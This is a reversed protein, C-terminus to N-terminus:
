ILSGTFECLRGAEEMEAGPLVVFWGSQTNTRTHTLALYSQNPAPPHNTNPPPCQNCRRTEECWRSNSPKESSSPFGLVRILLKAWNIQIICAQWCALLLFVAKAFLLNRWPARRLPASPARPNLQSTQWSFSCYIFAMCIWEASYCVWNTPTQKKGRTTNSSKVLSLRWRGVKTRLSIEM